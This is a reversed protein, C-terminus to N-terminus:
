TKQRCTKLVMWGGNHLHVLIFRYHEYCHVIFGDVVLIVSHDYFGCIDVLTSQKEHFYILLQDTPLKKHYFCLRWCLTRKCFLCKMLVTAWITSCYILVRLVWTWIGDDKSEILSHMLKNIYDTISQVQQLATFYLWYNISSTFFCHFLYGKMLVRNM